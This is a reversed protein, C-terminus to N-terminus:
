TEAGPGGMEPLDRLEDLLVAIEALRAEIREVYDEVYGRPLEDEVPLETMVADAFEIQGRPVAVLARGADTPDSWRTLVDVGADRLRRVVIATGLQPWAGLEEYDPPLGDGADGAAAGTLQEPREAVLEVRCDSCFESGAVYEDGCSPCWVTPSSM